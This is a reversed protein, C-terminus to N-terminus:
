ASFLIFSQHRQKAMDKSVFTFYLSAFMNSYRYNQIYIFNKNLFTHLNNTIKLSMKDSGQTFYAVTCSLILHEEQLVIHGM